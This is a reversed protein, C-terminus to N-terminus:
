KIYYTACVAAFAFLFSRTAGLGQMCLSVLFVTSQFMFAPLRLDAFHEKGKGTFFLILLFNSKVLVKIVIMLYIMVHTTWWLKLVLQGPSPCTSIICLAAIGSTISWVIILVALGIGYVDPVYITGYLFYYWVVLNTIILFIVKLVVTARGISFLTIDGNYIMIGTIM